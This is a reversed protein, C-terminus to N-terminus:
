SIMCRNKNNNQQLQAGLPVQPMTPPLYNSWGSGSETKFKQRPSNSRSPHLVWVAFYNYVKGQTYLFSWQLLNALDQVASLCGTVKIYFKFISISKFNCLNGIESITSYYWTRFLHYIPSPAWQKQFVVLKWTHTIQVLKTQSYRHM